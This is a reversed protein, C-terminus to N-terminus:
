DNRYQRDSTQNVPISQPSFSTLLGSIALSQFGLAHIVAYVSETATLSYSINVTGGSSTESGMGVETMDSERFVRVESGDQVGTFTFLSITGNQDTLTGVVSVGSGLTILGTTTLSGDFSPGTRVTLVNGGLDILQAAGQDLVIDLSGADILDGMRNLAFSEEGEYNEFLFAAFADYLQNATDIQTYALVAALDPETVLPDDFLVQNVTTGGLGRLSVDLIGIGYGYGFFAMRFTDTTDNFRSRRDWVINSNRDSGERKYVLGTLIGGDADFRHFGSADFQHTYVIDDLYSPSQLFVGAELRNGNDADAIHLKVGDISGGSFARLNIDTPQRIEYFGRNTSSSNSNGGAVVSTGESNSILRGWVQSWFAIHQGSLGAADFDEIIYFQNDPSTNSFSLAQNGSDFPRWGAIRVANAIMTIFTGRTILGRIDTNESRQRIQVGSTQMIAQCQQSHVTVFSGEMFAMPNNMYIAGGFWNFTGGSNVRLDAETERFSDTSPDTFRIATGSSFRNQAAGIDIEEGVNFVGGNNIQVKQHPAADGFVLEETEPDLSLTGNVRIQRNGVNYISHNREDIVDVGSVSSLGSLNNDTGTQTITSGSLSFPM